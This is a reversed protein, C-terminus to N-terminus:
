PTEEGDAPEVAPETNTANTVANGASGDSIAQIGAMNQQLYLDDGGPLPALDELARAENPTMVGGQVSKVLADMRDKFVGRQLGNMNFKVYYKSASAGTFIKRNIEQEWRTVYPLICYKAFHLDQAESNAFTNGVSSQLFSLPVRFVRAIEELQFRRNELHQADAPAIGLSKIDLGDELVVTKHANGTGAHNSNFSEKIRKAAVDSLAKPSVLVTGVTAGNRYFGSGFKEAALSLGIANRSQAIPSYGKLGDFGFLPVHLVDVSPLVRVSGDDATIKYGLRPTGDIEVLRAEVRDPRLPWLEMAEGRGNRVIEAYANGWGALHGTLIERFTAASMLPNPEVALMRHYNGAKVKAAGGASDEFVHVPLSAITEAIIRICSYVAASQMASVENVNVGSDTPNGLWSVLWEAPNALSTKPNEPSARLESAWGALRNMFNM